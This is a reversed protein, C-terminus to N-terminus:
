VPFGITFETGHDPKSKIEITGGLAEVQTKVMFLGMGKGETTTDFRKYLGFLQSANKDLDIGKGNDKFHLVIKGKSLRSTMSIVPAVGVKRYKISNSTLNYFISYLYSKVTFMSAVEFSCNIEAKENTITNHISTKITDVLDIFHVDEKKENARERSQLIHNLDQIVGDITLISKSVREVVDQKEEADLLDEKLMESLGIINAVPARLNHSIIYTFQELDKVHQILDAAVRERELMATKTETIDRNALIFGAHRNDATKVNLWRVNFWQTTGDHRQFSLDYSSIEGSSKIKELTQCIVPWREATFYYNIPKNIELEKKNFDISFKQALANFSVLSLDTGIFIYASDTNDFIARLNAESKKLAEEDLKRQTVDTVMAVMGTYNGNADVIPNSSVNAWFEGGSKTIYRIDLDENSGKRRREMRAASEARDNEHMFHFPEKGLMEEPRYGFLDALKQNVFNTKGQEDITWVGEQATEVIQRYRSESRHHREEALKRETIDRTIGDARVLRGGDDFGPVVKDEVWRVDGDRRIIRYEVHVTKHAQLMDEEDAAFHKDDPHILEYWLRNNELFAEPKYGSLKECGNSIHTVNGTLQDVSYFVEDMANFFTILEQHAYEIKQFGYDRGFNFAM